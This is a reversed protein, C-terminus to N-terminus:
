FSIESAKLVKGIQAFTSNKDAILDIAKATGSDETTHADSVLTVQYGLEVGVNSTANVCYDTQAGTIVLTKTGLSVLHAQLDTDAFSSPETKYIRVENPLPKLDDVIEWGTSGKVLYDDSHQVWIVPANSSRARSILSNIKSVVESTKVANAVVDKQVDIVLLASTNM